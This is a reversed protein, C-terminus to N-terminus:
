DDIPQMEFPRPPLPPLPAPQQPLTPAVAEVPPPEDWDEDAKVAVVPMPAPRIPPPASTPPPYPGADLVKRCTSPDCGDPNLELSPAYTVMLSSRARLATLAASSVRKSYPQDSEAAFEFVGTLGRNACRIHVHDPLSRVDQIVCRFKGPSGEQACTDVAQGLQAWVFVGVCCVAALRV